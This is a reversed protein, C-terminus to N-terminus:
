QDEFIFFNFLWWTINHQQTNKGSDSGVKDIFGDRFMRYWLQSHEVRVKGATDITQNLYRLILCYCYLSVTFM